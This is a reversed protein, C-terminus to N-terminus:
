YFTFLSVYMGAVCAGGYFQERNGYVYAFQWHGYPAQLGYLLPDYSVSHKQRFDSLIIYSTIAVSCYEAGGGQTPAKKNYLEV